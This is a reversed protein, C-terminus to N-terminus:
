ENASSENKGCPISGKAKEVADIGDEIVRAKKRYKVFVIYCFVYEAILPVVCLYSMYYEVPHLFAILFGTAVSLAFACLISVLIIIDYSRRMKILKVNDAFKEEKGARTFQIASLKAMVISQVCKVTFAPVFMIIILWPLAFANGDGTPFGFVTFYVIIACVFSLCVVIFAIVTGTWSLNDASARLKEDPFIYRFTYINKDTNLNYKYKRAQAEDISKLVDASMIIFKGTMIARRKSLVKIVYNLGICFVFIFTAIYFFLSLTESDKRVLWENLVAMVFVLVGSAFIFNAVKYPIAIVAKNERVTKRLFTIEPMEDPMDANMVIANIKGSFYIKTICAICLFVICIFFIILNLFSLVFVVSEEAYSMVYSLAVFSVSMAFFVITAAITMCYTSYLKDRQREDGILRAYKAFGIGFM